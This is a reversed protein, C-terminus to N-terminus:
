LSDTRGGKWNEQSLHLYSIGADQKPLYILLVSPKPHAKRLTKNENIQGWRMKRLSGIRIESEM